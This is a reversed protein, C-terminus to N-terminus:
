HLDSKGPIPKIEVAGIITPATLTNGLADFFHAVQHDREEEPFSLLFNYLCAGILSGFGKSMQCGTVKGANAEGYTWLLVSLEVEAGRKHLALMENDGPDFAANAARFDKAMQDLDYKPM